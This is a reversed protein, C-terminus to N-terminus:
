PLRWSGVTDSQSLLLWFVTIYKNTATFLNLVLDLDTEEIVDKLYCLLVISSNQPIWYDTMDNRKWFEEIASLSSHRRIWCVYFM